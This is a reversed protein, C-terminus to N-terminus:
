RTLDGRQFNSCCRSRPAAPRWVYRPRRAPWSCSRGGGVAGARDHTTRARVAGARSLGLDSLDRGTLRASVGLAFAFKLTLMFPEAPSTFVLRGDPLYPAIPRKLMGIIDVREVIFWGVITGIVLALLSWLIRWRLEELHELFPM